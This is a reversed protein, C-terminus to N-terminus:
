WESRIGDILESLRGRKTWRSPVDKQWDLVLVLPDYDDTDGLHIAVFVDDGPTVSGGILLAHPFDLRPDDSGSLMTRTMCFEPDDVYGAVDLNQSVRLMADINEYLRLDDLENGLCHRLVDPTVHKWYGDSLSETLIKPIKYNM